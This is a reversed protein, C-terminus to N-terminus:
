RQGPFHLACGLFMMLVGLAATLAMTVLRNLMVLFSINAIYVPVTYNDLGERETRSYM